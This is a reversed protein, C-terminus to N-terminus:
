AAIEQHLSLHFESGADRDIHGRARRFLVGDLLVLQVVWFAAFSLIKAVVLRLSRLAGSVGAAEGLYTARAVAVTSLVLGAFSMVWYPVVQRGVDSRGAM